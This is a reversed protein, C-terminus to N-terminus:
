KRILAFLDMLERTVGDPDGKAVGDHVCHTMHSEMVIQDLEKLAKQIALSLTVIDTCYKDENIMRELGNLQGKIIQLRHNVKDQPARM